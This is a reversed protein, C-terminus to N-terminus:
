QAPKMKFLFETEALSKAIGDLEPYVLRRTIGLRALEMLINEKSARPVLLADLSEIDLQLHDFERQQLAADRMDLTPPSHWTFVGDQARLRPSDYYPHILKICPGNLGEEEQPAEQGADNVFRVNRLELLDQENEVKLLSFADINFSGQRRCIVYVAGDTGGNDKVPGANAQCAFFLAFLPNATWDLLRCPLEYHRAIFLSEGATFQQGLHQHARRRFRHLLQWETENLNNPKRGKMGFYSLDRGITPVLHNRMNSEGRYWSRYQAGGNRHLDDLACLYKALSTIKFEEKKFNLNSGKITKDGM